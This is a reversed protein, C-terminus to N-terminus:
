EKALLLSYKALRKAHNGMICYDLIAATNEPDHFLKLLRKEGRIIIDKIKYV